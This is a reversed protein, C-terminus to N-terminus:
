PCRNLSSFDEHVLAKVEAPDLGEFIWFNGICVPSLEFEDGAIQQCLCAM